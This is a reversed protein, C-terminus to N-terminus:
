NSVGFDRRSCERSYMSVQCDVHVHKGCNECYLGFMRSSCVECWKLNKFSRYVFNHQKFHLGISSQKILDMKLEIRSYMEIVTCIVLKFEPAGKSKENVEISNKLSNQIFNKFSREINLFKEEINAINESISNKEVDKIVSKIEEWCQIELIFPSFDMGLAAIPKRSKSELHMQFISQMISAVIILGGVAVLGIGVPGVVTVAVSSSPLGDLLGGTGGVLLGGLLGNRTAEPLIGGLGFRLLDLGDKLNISDSFIKVPDKKKKTGGEDSECLDQLEKALERWLNLLKGCVVIRFNCVKLIENYVEQFKNEHVRLINLEYLTKVEFSKFDLYHEECLKIWELLKQPLRLSSLEYIPSHYNELRQLFNLITDDITWNRLSKKTTTSQFFDLLDLYTLLNLFSENFHEQTTLIQVTELRSIIQRLPYKNNENFLSKLPNVDYPKIAFKELTNALVITFESKILAILIKSMKSLLQEVSKSYEKEFIVAKSQLTEVSSLIEKRRSSYKKTYDVGLSLQARKDPSPMYFSAINLKSGEFLNDGLNKLVSNASNKKKSGDESSIKTYVVVSNSAHLFSCNVLSAFKKLSTRESLALYSQVVIFKFKRKLILLKYFLHILLEIYPGRTDNLGPFDVFILGEYPYFKPLLTIAEAGGGTKVGNSCSLVNFGLLDVEGVLKNKLLLNLLSSKGSGTEGVLGVTELNSCNPCSFALNNYINNLPLMLSEILELTFNNEKEARLYNLNLIKLDLESIQIGNCLLCNSDFM